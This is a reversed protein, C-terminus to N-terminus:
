TLIKPPTLLTLYLGRKEMTESVARCGYSSTILLLHFVDHLFLSSWSSPLHTSVCARCGIRPDIIAHRSQMTRTPRLERTSALIATCFHSPSMGKDPSANGARALPTHSCTLRVERQRVESSLVVGGHLRVLCHSNPM